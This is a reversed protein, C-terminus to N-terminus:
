EGVDDDIFAEKRKRKRSEQQAIKYHGYRLSHFADFYYSKDDCANLARKTHELTVLRFHSDHAIRQFSVNDVQGQIFARRYDEHKLVVSRAIGKRRSKEKRNVVVMSYMKPRLAIFEVMPVGFLEDKFKGLVRANRMKDVGGQLLPHHPDAIESLDFCQFRDQIDRLDQSLPKNPATATLLYVLSDTDTYCMALRSPGFHPLMIDYHFNFMHLKSLDLITMGLIMPRNMVVQHLFMEVAMIENNEIIRYQKAFPTNINKVAKRYDQPGVFFKVNRRKRVQEMTKGFIANNMLKFFDKAVADKAQKRRETNFDIYTKLWPAQRFRIVQHVKTLVLGLRLCQQLNRYHIVYREKSTLDMILKEHGVAFQKQQLINLGLREAMAVTYPSPKVRKRDPCLPYDNHLDHLAAPYDLDVELIWGYPGEPDLHHLIHQTVRQMDTSYWILPDHANHQPAAPPSSPSSSPPDMMATLDPDELIMQWEEKFREDQEQEELSPSPSSSAPWLYAREDKLENHPQLDQKEWVYNGLPLSQSMAWGYLNNADLYLLQREPESPNYVPLSPDNTPNMGEFNAQALPHSVQCMGGRIGKEVMLLMNIDTMNEIRVHQQVNRFLMASWSLSPATLFHAPDLGYGLNQDLCTARFREFVSALLLVDLAVYVRTYDQLSHCNFLTWAQQAQAYEEDSLTKGSLSSAFAERPPLQTEKLRDFDTMYEYPYIGKRLSMEIQADTLAPPPHTAGYHLVYPLERVVPAFAAHLDQQSSLSKRLNEVHQELAGQMFQLSDIFRMRNITLSTFKELSKAICDM